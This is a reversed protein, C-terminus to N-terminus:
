GAALAGVDLSGVGEAVGNVVVDEVGREEVITLRGGEHRTM